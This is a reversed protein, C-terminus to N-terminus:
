GSQGLAIEVFQRTRARQADRGWTDWIVSANEQQRRPDLPRLTVQKMDSDTDLSQFDQVSCGMKLLWDFAPNKANLYIRAGQLMLICINGMGQQRLHNMFVYGCSRLIEIYSEIDVFETLPVFRDGFHKKGIEIVRRRYSENSKPVYSLPVIIKSNGLQVRRELIDFADLHNNLPDASNGVLINDGPNLDTSGTGILDDEVTGYRWELFRAEFWPNLAAAMEYESRLVPLFYDVRSLIKRDDLGLSWKTGRLLAGKLTAALQLSMQGLTESNRGLLKRTAPLLLGDPYHASLLREYYDFGWGVWFVTKPKPIRPLLFKNTLAHFVVASCSKDGILNLAERATYFEVDREKVFRLRSRKGIIV